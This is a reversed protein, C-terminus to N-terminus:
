RRSRCSRGTAPRPWSWCGSRRMWRARTASPGAGRRAIAADPPRPRPDAAGGAELFATAAALGGRSAGPGGVAGAGRRRGRAPAARGPGPAVGPPRSRADPRHGGGAGRPDGADATGAADTPRRRAPPEPVAGPCRVGGLGSRGGVGPGLDWGGRRGGCWCRTARRILRRWRCCGDPRRRFSMSSGGFSDEIRGPLSVAGPLGFGRPEWCWGWPSNRCPGAPEGQDRRGDPRPGADVPGTLASELLARAHEEPCARWWSSRCRRSSRARCGPRSRWALRTPRGAAVGRVGLAQVSARDLWQEDDVVCM